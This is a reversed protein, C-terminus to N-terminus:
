SHRLYKRKGGTEPLSYVPVVDKLPGRFKIEPVDNDVVAISRKQRQTTDEAHRMRAPLSKEEDCHKGQVALYNAISLAEVLFTVSVYSLFALATLFASSLLM